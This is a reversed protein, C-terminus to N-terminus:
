GGMSEKQCLKDPKELSMPGDRQWKPLELVQPGPGLWNTFLVTPGETRLVAMGQEDREMCGNSLFIGLLSEQRFVLSAALADWTM